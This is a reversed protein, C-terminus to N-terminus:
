RFPMYFVDRITLPKNYEKIGFSSVKNTTYTRFLKDWTSFINGYNSNMNKHETDHHPFHFSPTVLFIKLLKDLKSNIRINSHNFLAFSSLTIEYIIYGEVSPRFIFILAVKYFGSMIIEIPHFRFGSTTGMERDSHHVKHFRWLFNIKHSLVHQLYIFFDFIIITAIVSIPSYASGLNILTIKKANFIEITQAIGM